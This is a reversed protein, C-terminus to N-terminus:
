FSLFILKEKSRLWRYGATKNSGQNWECNIHITHTCGLPRANQYPCTDLRKLNVLHEVRAKAQSQICDLYVNGKMEKCELNWDSYM